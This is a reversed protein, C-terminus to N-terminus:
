QNTLGLGVWPPRMADCQNNRDPRECGRLERQPERLGHNADIYLYVSYRDSVIVGDPDDGLLARTADRDRRTAIQFLAADVAAAVSLWRSDGAQRWSTEDACRVKADDLYRLIRAYPDELAASAQKVLTEVSAVGVRIGCLDELLRSTERRSVRAATLTSAAAAVTAGLAGEPVGAPLSALTCRGCGCRVRMWRHETVETWVVIESVQHAVPDGVAVRDAEGVAAGCGACQSPWYTQVRDPDAVM